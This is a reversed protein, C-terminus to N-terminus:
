KIRKEFSFGVVKEDDYLLDQILKDTIDAETITILKELDNIDKTNESHEMLIKSFLKDIFRGNGFNKKGKADEIISIIKKKFSESSDFTMKSNRIKNEFMQYLELTEYDRYDIYYGIRSTLGPNMDKFHKMEDKYGAFIFVTENKEMEKIIEVLAEQGFNQAESNFNYAEDIFIVGGRNNSIVKKTKPATQGVYEAILDETTIEAVKNNKTYGLSYLIESIIRAVTTKGTGPNGTFFMHLSPADLEVNDGVKKRFSLYTILRSVEVKVDELGILNNLKELVDNVDKLDSDETKKVVKKAENKEKRKEFVHQLQEEVISENGNQLAEITSHLNQFYISVAQFNSQQMCKYLEDFAAKSIPIDGGKMIEEDNFEYLWSEDELGKVEDKPSLIHKIRHEIKDHVGFMISQNLDDFYQKALEDENKAGPYYDFIEGVAMPYGYCLNEESCALIEDDVSLYRKNTKSTLIDNKVDLKCETLVELPKFIFIGNEVDLVVKEYLIAVYKEEQEM